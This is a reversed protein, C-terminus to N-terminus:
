DGTTGDDDFDDEDAIRELDGLLARLRAVIPTLERRIEKSDWAPDEAYMGPYTALMTM